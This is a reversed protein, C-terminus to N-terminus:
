PKRRQPQKERHYGVSIGFMMANPEAQASQYIAQLDAGVTFGSDDGGPKWSLSLKPVIAGTISDDAYGALAGTGVDIYLSKSPRIRLDVEAGGAVQNSEGRSLFGGKPAWLVSGGVVIDFMRLGPGLPTIEFRAGFLPSVKRDRYSIGGQLNTDFTLPKEESWSAAGVEKIFEAYSDANQLADDPPYGPDSHYTETSSRGISSAHVIEHLVDTWSVDGKNFCMAIRWNFTRGGIDAAARVVSKCGEAENGFERCIWLHRSFQVEPLIRQLSELIDKISAEDHKKFHRDLANNMSLGAKVREIAKRTSSEATAIRAHLTACEDNSCCSRVNVNDDRFQQPTLKREDPTCNDGCQPTQLGPMNVQKGAGADQGNVVYRIDNVYEGSGPLKNPDFWGELVQGQQTIRRILIFPQAKDIADSIQQFSFNEAHLVAFVLMRDAKICKNILDKFQPNMRMAKQKTEIQAPTDNPSIGWPAPDNLLKQLDDEKMPCNALRDLKRSVMAANGSQQVVHTLEHALLKKGSETAPQYQGENFVINNGHTYALANVNKASRSASSDSHIRVGSFDYGMRSEFFSKEGNGLPSGGSLTSLYSETQESGTATETGIEKRQMKKEEEECHACKRQIIRPSFFKKDATGDSIRMVKDAVADAEQEYVDNPQNITLKPQFFLTNSGNLGNHDPTNKKSINAREGM